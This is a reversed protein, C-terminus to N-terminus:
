KSPRVTSTSPPSTIYPRLAAMRRRRPGAAALHGLAVALGVALCTLWLTRSGVRALLEGGFLPSLTFALGWTMSYAGQYRGRLAAPALNAVLAAAVPFGVVEGVTWLLVGAAYVPVSGAFANVGFGLGFLLAAAALCRGPEAGRLAPTLVPQLLVVGVGNMALLYAFTSPGVGHAAMDIPAALEFQTFVVLAVVQLGLFVAFHGDRAVELLGPRAGGGASAAAPRTEPVRLFVLLAFVLSTVADAVFLAVLSRGAVLGAAALGFSWGLNVAWYVLGYARTRDEEPVLDAVAANMAPRYLEGTGAALFALVALLAPTRTFALALVSAAGACLGLLMTARRGLRDALAGGVPGAVVVGLGYLAVVRGAADAAFGRERVLYIGLFILSFSALRNVLMGAWITWFAAPLGGLAARLRDRLAPM